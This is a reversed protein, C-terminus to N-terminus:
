WLGKQILIKKLLLCDDVILGDVGYDILEMIHSEKNIVWVIIKAGTNKIREIQLQENINLRIIYWGDEKLLRAEGAFVLPPFKKIKNLSEELFNEDKYTPLHKAPKSRWSNPSWSNKM